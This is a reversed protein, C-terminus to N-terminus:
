KTIKEKNSENQKKILSKRKNWEYQKEAFRTKNIASNM